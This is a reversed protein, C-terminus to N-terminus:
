AHFVVNGSAHRQEGSPSQYQFQLVGHEADWRLLLRVQTGPFIPTQFKLVDVRSFAGPMDFCARGLAIAWDLQAVGPLLPAQPFHGDFVALDAAMDLLAEAETASCGLWQVAPTEPRFLEALLRETVKGQANGPLADVFRWRRPLAVREAVQLLSRKFADTLAKRGHQRLAARGADSPVVVAALRTRDAEALPFVRAEQVEPHALLARELATLSVRKEEIKVIRDSRGLLDFRGDAHMHVRDSTLWPAADPLHPSAVQLLGDVQRLQVGALATWADGDRARQRWAIGGTESSGYVEIPSLGLLRQVEHAAEPLLPGGSSFIAQVRGRAQTWPLTDPLRKLHAPSAVLVAPGQALAACIAEPYELRGAVFARGTGLPWLVQFLLGYIHQHSVTCHIKVGAQGLYRGFSAELTKVEADLQALRKEIDLPEGSSGSTQVVLRCRQLDLAEFPWPRHAAGPAPRVGQPLDGANFDATAALRQLTQPQVDGPLVVTKGAQWAGMLAAAFDYSDGAFLAVRRGAHCQLAWAWAAVDHVFGARTRPQGGVWAVVDGAAQPRIMACALGPQEVM